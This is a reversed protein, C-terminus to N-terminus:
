RGPKIIRSENGAQTPESQQSQIVSEAMQSMTEDLTRKMVKPFAEMAEELNNAELPAQLPRPGQPLMVQTQGVFVPTRSKDEEGDHKIPIFKIISAVKFDTVMEQRYLNSKDVTFDINQNQGIGTM